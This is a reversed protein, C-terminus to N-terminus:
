KVYEVNDLNEFEKDGTLFKIDLEKAMIYGVCDPVSVKRDKWKLRFKMAEKIWESRVSVIYKSYNKIYNEANINKDKLWAYCLEALTFNNIIVESNIYPEYNKNGKTIEIIAYADFFYKTMHLKKM